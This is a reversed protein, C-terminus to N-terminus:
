YPKKDKKEEWMNFAKLANERGLPEKKLVPDEM